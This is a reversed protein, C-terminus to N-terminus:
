SKPGCKERRSLGNGWLDLSSGKGRYMWLVGGARVHRRTRVLASSPVVGCWMGHCGSPHEAGLREREDGLNLWPEGLLFVSVYGCRIESRETERTVPSKFRLALAPASTSPM